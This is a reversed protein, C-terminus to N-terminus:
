RRKFGPPPQFPRAAVPQQSGKQFGIAQKSVPASPTANNKTAPKVVGKGKHKQKKLQAAKREQAVARERKSMAPGSEVVTTLVQEGRLVVLGLTRTEVKPKANPDKNKAKLQAMQTTPIRLEVCDGLVLNMHSDFAMLEGVFAKGDNTLVRIRYHLLDSLKSKHGVKVSM